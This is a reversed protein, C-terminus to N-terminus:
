NPSIVMSKTILLNNPNSVKILFITIFWKIKHNIFPLREKVADYQKSTFFNVVEYYAIHQSFHDKEPLSSSPFNPTLTAPKPAETPLFM